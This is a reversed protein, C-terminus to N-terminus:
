HGGEDGADGRHEGRGRGDNAYSGVNLCIGGRAESTGLKGGPADIAVSVRGTERTSREGGMKPMIMHELLNWRSSRLHSKGALLISREQSM